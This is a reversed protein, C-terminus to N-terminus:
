KGGQLFFYGLSVGFYGNKYKTDTENSLNLFGLSYNVKLMLGSNLIYAAMFNAGIDVRDFQGEGNGFEVKEEEEQSVGNATTTAITKGSLGFGAYPGAGVMLRNNGLDIAYAFNIPLDIYSINTKSEASIQQGLLDISANAKFGKDVYYLEPMFRFGGEGLPIDAILGASFSTRSKIDFNLGPIGTALDTSPKSFVAGAQGGLSIQAFSSSAILLLAVPFILKLKM